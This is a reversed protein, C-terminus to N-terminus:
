FEGPLVAVGKCAPGGVEFTSDLLFGVLGDIVKTLHDMDRRGETVFFGITADSGLRRMEDEKYPATRQHLGPKLLLNEDACALGARELQAMTHPRFGHDETRGTLFVLEAGRKHAENALEIMSPIIGDHVLNKPDWFERDWVTGIAEVVDDPLKLAIATKRGDDHMDDITVGDAYHTGNEQDFVRLAHLTRGRTDFLTNDLDFVCRVPEGSKVLREIEDLRQALIKPGDTLPDLKKARAGTVADLLATRVNKTPVGAVPARQHAIDSGTPVPLEAADVDSAPVRVQSEDSKRLTELSQLTSRDVPLKKPLAKPIVTV